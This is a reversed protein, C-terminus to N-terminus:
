PGPCSRFSDQVEVEDGDEMGAVSLGRRFIKAEERWSGSMVIYRYVVVESSLPVKVTAEWKEGSVKKMKVARRSHRFM